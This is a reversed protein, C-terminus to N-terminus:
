EVGKGDLRKHFDYKSYSGFFNPCKGTCDFGLKKYFDPAQFGFTMLHMGKLSQLKAMREAERMLKTGYGKHRDNVVLYSVEMWGCWVFGTLGGVIENEANRLSLSFHKADERMGNQANYQLLLSTITDKAKGKGSEFELFLDKDISEKTVTYELASM